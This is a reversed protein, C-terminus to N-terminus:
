TRGRGGLVWWVEHLARKYWASLAQQYTLQGASFTYPVNYLTKVTQEVHLVADPSFISVAGNTTLVNTRMNSSFYAVYGAQAPTLTGAKLANPNIGATALQVTDQQAVTVLTPMAIPGGPALLSEGLYCDLKEMATTAAAACVKDGRGNWTSLGLAYDTEQTPADTTNM